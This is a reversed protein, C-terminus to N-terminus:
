LIPLCNQDVLDYMLLVRQWLQSQTSDVISDPDGGEVAHTEYLTNYFNISCLPFDRTIKRCIKYYDWDKSYYDSHEKTLKVLMPLMKKYDYFCSIEEADGFKIETGGCVTFKNPVKYKDLLEIVFTPFLPSCLLYYLHPSDMLDIPDGNVSRIENNVYCINNRRVATGTLGKQEFILWYNFLLLDKVFYKVVPLITNKVQEETIESIDMTQLIKDKISKYSNFISASMPYQISVPVRLHSNVYQDLDIYELEKLANDLLKNYEALLDRNQPNKYRKLNQILGKPAYLLGVM